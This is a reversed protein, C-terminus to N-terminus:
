KPVQSLQTEKELEVKTYRRDLSYSLVVFTLALPNEYFLYLVYVVIILMLYIKKLLFLFFVIIFRGRTIFLLLINM